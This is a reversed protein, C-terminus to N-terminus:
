GIKVYKAFSVAEKNKLAVNKETYGIGVKEIFVGTKPKFGM